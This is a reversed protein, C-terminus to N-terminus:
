MCVVGRRVAKAEVYSYSRSQRKKGNIIMTKSGSTHRSILQLHPWPIPASHPHPHPPQHLLRSSRLHMADHPPDTTRPTQSRLISALWSPRRSIHGPTRHGTATASGWSGYSITVARARTPLRRSSSSHKPQHNFFPKFNLFFSLFPFEFFSLRPIDLISVRFFPKYPPSFRAARRAYCVPPASRHPHLAGHGPIRTECFNSDPRPNAM